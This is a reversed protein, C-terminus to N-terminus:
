SEGEVPEGVSLARLKRHLASREMGVIKATKSVNGGTRAIQATLYDREFAERAEKLPLKMVETRRESLLAGPDERLIDQPLEEIGIEDDAGGPAMILLWEVVNRLQRVNGPWAHSKLAAIAGYSLCRRPQGALTALELFHDVLLPLDDVRSALSPAKIPVVNLRFYLDERFEGAKVKAQLDQSTSAIVRVDVSTSSSGGVPTFTQEQVVRLMKAQTELPMDAVEDLLLSGEHANQLLGVSVVDDGIQEGFLITEMTEPRIGACNVAIFPHDARPSLAHIGRAIVEKGAGSPGSILVRSNVQALKQIQSKLSGIVVSDGILPWEKLSQARLAANESRLDAAEFARVISILMRDSAFPKEIFDYAGDQIATVATEIDAHGSMMLIVTGPALVRIEQLLALGDVRSGELWVDLVVVRPVQESIAELASDADSAVAVRYGEDELLGAVSSRIDAEDDVVLVDIAM